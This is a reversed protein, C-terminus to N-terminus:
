TEKLLKIIEPKSIINDEIGLQKNIMSFLLREIIKLENKCVEFGDGKIETQLKEVYDKVHFSAVETEDPLDDQFNTPFEIVNSM